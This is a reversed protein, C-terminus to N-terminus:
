SHSKKRVTNIFITTRVRRVGGYTYNRVAVARVHRTWLRCTIGKCPWRRSEACGGGPSRRMRVVVVRVLAHTGEEDARGGGLCPTDGRGGGLRPTNARGGVPSACAHM